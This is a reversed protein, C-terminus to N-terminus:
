WTAVRVLGVLLYGCLLSGSLGWFRWGLRVKQRVPTVLLGGLAILMLIPNLCLGQQVVQMQLLARLRYPTALLERQYRLFVLGLVANLLVTLLMATTPLSRALLTQLSLRNQQATLVAFLSYVIASALLLGANLWYLRRADLHLRQLLTTTAQKIM